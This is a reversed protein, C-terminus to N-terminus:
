LFWSQSCCCIFFNFCNVVNLLLLSSFICLVDCNQDLFIAVCFLMREGLHALMVSWGIAIPAANPGSGNSRHVAAMLVTFVLVFTGILEAIFASGQGIAGSVVNTGLGFPPGCDM